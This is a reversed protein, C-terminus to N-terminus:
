SSSCSGTTSISSRCAPAPTSACWRAASRSRPARAPMRGSATAPPSRGTSRPRWGTPSAPPRCARGPRDHLRCARRAVASGRRRCRQLRVRGRRSRLALSRARFAVVPSAFRKMPNRAHANRDDVAPLTPCAPGHTQESDCAPWARARRSPVPRPTRQVGAFLGLRARASGEGLRERQFRRARGIRSGRM